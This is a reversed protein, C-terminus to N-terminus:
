GMEELIERAGRSLLDNALREGLAAADDLSGFIDGRVLQRGDLSTVLGLLTLGSGSITALGGIPLQCGGGLGAVLGREAALASRTPRDDVREIAARTKGDGERIEIAIIGQGPAPLCVDAPLVAAIRSALGLRRLGATALVLADAHRDDLKRLRTEVNGRIAVVRSDPLLRALQAARRVSTTGLRPTKGLGAVVGELSGDARSGAPLVVADRPDERALVAGITLGEPLASPLDKASHVAVDIAGGLLAEEIEKVFLRKGGAKSVHGDLLRDGSTTIPVIDPEPSGHAVIAAAVARAQWLALPSGRTGIRLPTV